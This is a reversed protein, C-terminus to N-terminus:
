LVAAAFASYCYRVNTCPGPGDPLLASREQVRALVEFAPKMQWPPDLQKECGVGANKRQKRAKMMKM